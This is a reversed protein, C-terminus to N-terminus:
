AAACPPVACSHVSCLLAALCCPCTCTCPRCSCCSTCCQASVLVGGDAGLPVILLIATFTAADVPAWGRHALRSSLLCRMQVWAAPAAIALRSVAEVPERWRAWSAYSRRQWAAMVANGAAAAATVTADLVHVSFSPMHPALGVLLLVQLRTPIPPAASAADAASLQHM